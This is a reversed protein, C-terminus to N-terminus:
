NCWEPNPGIKIASAKDQDTAIYSDRTFAGMCRWFGGGDAHESWRADNAKRNRWSSMQNDFYYPAGLNQWYSTVDYFKLMRGKFAADRWLCVARQPCADSPSTVSDALGGDADGYCLARITLDVTGCYTVEALLQAATFDRPTGLTPVSVADTSYFVADRFAEEGVSELTVDQFAESNRLWGPVPTGDLLEAGTVTRVPAGTNDLNVGNANASASTLALGTCCISAALMLRRATLRLSM